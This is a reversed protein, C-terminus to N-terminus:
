SRFAFNQIDNVIFPFHYISSHLCIHPYHFFLESGCSVAPINIRIGQGILVSHLRLNDAEPCIQHAKKHRVSFATQFVNYQPIIIQFAIIAVAIKEPRSDTRIRISGGTRAKLDVACCIM